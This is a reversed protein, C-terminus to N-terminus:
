FSLGEPKGSFSSAISIGINKSYFLIITSFIFWFCILSDSRTPILKPRVEAIIVVSPRITPRLELVLEFNATIPPISVIATASAKESAKPIWMESSDSFLCEEESTQIDVTKVKADFNEKAM